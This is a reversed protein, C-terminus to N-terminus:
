ACRPNFNPRTRSYGGDSAVIGLGATLANILNILGDETMKQMGFSQGVSSGNQVSGIGARRMLEGKAAALLDTKEQTTFGAFDIIAAM